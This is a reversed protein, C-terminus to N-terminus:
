CEVNQICPQSCQCAFERASTMDTLNLTNTVPGRGRAQYIKLCFIRQPFERSKLIWLKRVKEDCALKKHNSHTPESLTKTLFREIYIFTWFSRLALTSYFLDLHEEMEVSKTRFDRTQFRKNCQLIINTDTGMWMGIATWAARWSM